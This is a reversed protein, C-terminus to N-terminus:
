GPVMFSCIVNADDDINKDVWRASECNDRSCISAASQGKLNPAFPMWRTFKLSSNDIAVFRNDTKLNQIGIWINGDYFLNSFFDNESESFIKWNNSEFISTKGSKPLALLAGDKECVEKAQIFNM